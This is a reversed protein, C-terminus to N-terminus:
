KIPAKRSELIATRIDRDSATIGAEKLAVQLFERAELERESLPVVAKSTKTKPACNSNPSLHDKLQEADVEDADVFEYYMMLLSECISALARKKPRGRSEAVDAMRGARTAVDMLETLARQIRVEDGANGVIQARVRGNMGRVLDFLEIANKQTTTARRHIREFADAYHRPRPEDDLAAM